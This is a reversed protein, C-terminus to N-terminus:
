LTGVGSPQDWCSYREQAHDNGESAKSSSLIKLQLVSADRVSRGDADTAGSCEIRGISDPPDKEGRAKQVRGFILM